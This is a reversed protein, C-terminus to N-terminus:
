PYFKVYNWLEIAKCGIRLCWQLVINEYKENGVWWKGIVAKGGLGVGPGGQGVMVM